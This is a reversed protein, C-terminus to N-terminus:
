QVTTDSEACTENCVELKRIAKAPVGVVITYPPVDKTVVAGAGVVAREGITVNPLIMAGAGIWAGKGIIIKGPISSIVRGHTEIQSTLHTRAILMVRPGISVDDEIVVNNTDTHHWAWFLCGPGIGVNKGISYGCVGWWFRPWRHTVPYQALLACIKGWIKKIM